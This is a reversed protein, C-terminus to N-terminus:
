WSTDHGLRVNVCAMLNDSPNNKTVKVERSTAHFYNFKDIMKTPLDSSSCIIRVYKDTNILLLLFLLDPGTGKLANLFTAYKGRVLGVVDNYVSVAIKLGIFICNYIVAYCDAQEQDM